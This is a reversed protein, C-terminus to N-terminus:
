NGAVAMDATQDSAAWARALPPSFIASGEPWARTAAEGNQYRQLDLYMERQAQVDEARIAEFIARTQMDIADEFKDNAAMAMALTASSHRGPYREYLREASLLSERKQEETAAPCSACARSLAQQVRPDHPSLRSASGLAEIGRTCEGQAIAALGLYYHADASLSQGEVVERLRREAGAFDGQRMLLMALRTRSRLDSSDANAAARYHGIALKEQGDQELLRAKFYNTAGHLPDIDLAEDLQQRAEAPRGLAVLTESLRLRADIDRPAESVAHGFMQAAVELNGGARAEDGETLYDEAGGALCPMFAGMLALSLAGPWLAKQSFKM